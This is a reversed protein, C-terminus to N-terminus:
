DEKKTKKKRKVVRGNDSVVKLNEKGFGAEFGKALNEKFQAKRKDWYGVEVGRHQMAPDAQPNQNAPDSGPAYSM